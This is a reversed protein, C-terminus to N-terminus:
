QALRIWDKGLRKLSKQNTESQPDWSALLDWFAPSHNMHVLHALEHLIIHNQLDPPMLVLRWNLSVNGSSSCSGWRSRQNRISVGRVTPIPLRSSLARVQSPLTASALASLQRVLSREGNDFIPFQDISSLSDFDIEPYLLTWRVPVQRNMITVLPHNRLHSALSQVTPEPTNVVTEMWEMRSQVFAEAHRRSVRRPYTVVFRKNGKYTISIRRSNPHARYDCEWPHSM